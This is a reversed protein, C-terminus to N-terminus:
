ELLTLHDMTVLCHNSKGASLDKTSCWTIAIVRLNSFYVFLGKTACINLHKKWQFQLHSLKGLFARRIEIM